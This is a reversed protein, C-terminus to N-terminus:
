PAQTPTSQQRSSKQVIAMFDSNTKTNRLRDILLNIAKDNDLASLTRRLHYTAALDEKSLLLDDRRTGSKNIDIAPFIRQDFLSRDLVLDMNGTGKFEEFIYDDMRSGTDVLATALITLSGGEEINRAAGFMRKPRYMAAPDLGGSMTRGSPNVVLNSARSLRTISDLLVIVDKKQEVMRKAKEMVMDAVRMHNEPLEDFTSAVVEGRVSRAIDTVEEPREDILLVILYVDPHNAMISNAINKILTTKGAKPPAVILGRQGKGIPSVLDIIRATINEQTTELKFKENPFIPTLKEFEKRSKSIDPAEGNCAEVRLLGYYREMEKPARVQGSVMDGTKLNFRKIQSQSIYVDENSSLYGETRLFGKGDPLIELIGKKFLNGSVEAQAELVRLVLDSKKLTATAPVNLEKAIDRLESLNKDELTTLDLDNQGRISDREAGRPEAVRYNEDRGQDRQDRNQDRGDNRNDNRSDGRADNRNDNRGDGRQGQLRGQQSNNGNAGGRSNRNENRNNNGDRNGGDRNNGNSSGSANGNGDRGEYRNRFGRADTRRLEARGERGRFRLGRDGRTELNRAELSRVEPRREDRVEPLRVARPASDERVTPDERSTSEERPPTELPMELQPTELRTSSESAEVTRPTQPAASSLTERSPVLEAGANESAASNGEANRAGANGSEANTASTDAPEDSVQSASASSAADRRSTTRRATSAATKAGGKTTARERRVGTAKSAASVSKKPPTEEVHADVNESARANASDSSSEAGSDPILHDEIKM